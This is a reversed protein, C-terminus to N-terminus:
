MIDCDACFENIRLVADNIDSKNVFLFKFQIKFIFQGFLSLFSPRVPARVLTLIQFVNKRKLLSIFQVNISFKSFNRLLSICKKNGNTSRKKKTTDKGSSRAAQAM